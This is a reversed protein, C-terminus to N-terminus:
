KSLHEVKDLEPSSLKKDIMSSIVNQGCDVLIKDELLYSTSLLSFAGGNGLIKIKM